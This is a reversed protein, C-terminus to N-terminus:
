AIWIAYDGSRPTHRPRDSNFRGVALTGEVAVDTAVRMGATFMLRRRATFVAACSRKPLKQPNLNIVVRTEDSQASSSKM